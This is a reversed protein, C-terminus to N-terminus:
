AHDRGFCTLCIDDSQPQDGVFNRLDSLVHRGLEAVSGIPMAVQRRVRELGYLENRGNMAESIGDTLLLFFDGPLVNIVAQEYVYDEAVGLPLGTQQEALEEVPQSDRRLLPPCHGANVLTLVHERPDLVALVLTVFRDQWRGAVLEANLRRVAAAPTPESALSDRVESSLRAMLLAAPMGKGSVDALVIALRGDPLTIYDFYDGGV